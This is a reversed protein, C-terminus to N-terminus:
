IDDVVHERFNHGCGRRRCVALIHGPGSVFGTCLCRMGTATRGHCPGLQVPPEPVPATVRASLTLGVNHRDGFPGPDPKDAIVLTHVAAALDAAVNPAEFVITAMSPAAANPTVVIPMGAVSYPLALEPDLGTVTAAATGLIGSDLRNGGRAPRLDDRFRRCHSEGRPRERSDM